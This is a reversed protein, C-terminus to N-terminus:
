FNVGFTQIMDVFNPHKVLATCFVANRCPWELLNRCFKHALAGAGLPRDHGMLIKLIKLEGTYQWIVSELLVM